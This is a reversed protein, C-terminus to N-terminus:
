YKKLLIKEAGIKGNGAFKGRSGESCTVMPLFNGRVPGHVLMVVMWPIYQLFSYHHFLILVPGHVLVMLPFYQAFLYSYNAKEAGEVQNRVQVKIEPWPVYM